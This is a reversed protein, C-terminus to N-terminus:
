LEVHYKKLIEKGQEFSSLDVIDDPDLMISFAEELATILIMHGVSDWSEIDQYKLNPLQDKSIEFTNMFVNEYRSITM